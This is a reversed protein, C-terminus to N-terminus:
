PAVQTAQAAAITALSRNILFSETVQLCICDNCVQKDCAVVTGTPNEFLFIPTSTSNPIFVRTSTPPIPTSSPVHIMTVTNTFVPFPTYAPIDCTDSVFDWGLGPNTNKANCKFCKLNGTEKQRALYTCDEALATIGVIVLVCVFIIILSRFINTRM